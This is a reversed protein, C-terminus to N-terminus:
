GASFDDVPTPDMQRKQMAERVIEPKERILKIDLM